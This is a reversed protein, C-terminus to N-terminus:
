KLVQYAEVIRDYVRQRLWGDLFEQDNQNNKAISVYNASVLGLFVEIFARPDISNIASITIPGVNGDVTISHNMMVCSEQALKAAVPLGVNVSIQFINLQVFYNNVNDLSLPDWFEKKYFTGVYKEAESYKGQDIFQWGEWNPHYNRAIGMFTYGGSDNPNNSVYGEIKLLQDMAREFATMM